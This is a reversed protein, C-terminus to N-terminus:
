EVRYAATKTFSYPSCIIAPGTPVVINKVFAIYAKADVKQTM